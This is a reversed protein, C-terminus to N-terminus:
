RKLLGSMIARLAMPNVPKHLLHHPSAGTVGLHQQAIDGSILFAPIERGFATRLTRIADIGTRGDQLHFDSIILDPARAALRALAEEDSGAAVVLCGWARLL